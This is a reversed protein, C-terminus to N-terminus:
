EEGKREEGLIGIWIQIISIQDDVLVKFTTLVLVYGFGIVKRIIKYYLWLQENIENM